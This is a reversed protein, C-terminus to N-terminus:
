CRWVRICYFLDQCVCKTLRSAYTGGAGPEAAAQRRVASGPGVGQPGMGRYAHLTAGTQTLLLGGGDRVAADVAAALGDVPGAAAAMGVAGMGATGAAAPASGGDGGDSGQGLGRLPPLASVHRQLPVPGAAMRQLFEWDVAAAATGSHTGGAKAAASYAGKSASRKSSSGSGGGAAAVHRKAEGEALPVVVCWPPPPVQEADVTATADGAALRRDEGVAAEVPVGAARLARRLAGLGVRESWGALAEEGVCMGDAGGTGPGRGAGGGGTGGAGRGGSAASAAAPSGHTVPAAGSAGSSGGPGRTGSSAGSPAATGAVSGRTVLLRELARDAAELAHLQARTLAVPGVCVLRASVPGAASSSSHPEDAAEAMVDSPLYATFPPLDYPLPEHLLLGFPHLRMGHSQSSTAASASTGYQPLPTFAFAHLHRVEVAAPGGGETSATPHPQSASVAAAAGRSTQSKTSRQPPMTVTATPATTAAHPPRLARPLRHTLTVRPLGIRRVAPAFFVNKLNPSPCWSHM